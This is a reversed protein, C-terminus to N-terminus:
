PNTEMKTMLDRFTQRIAAPPQGAQLADAIAEGLAAALDARSERRALPRPLPRVLIPHHLADDADPCLYRGGAMTRLSHAEEDLGHTLTQGCDRCVGQDTTLEALGGAWTASTRQAPLLWARNLRLRAGGPVPTAAIIQWRRGDHNVFMGPEAQAPSIWTTM